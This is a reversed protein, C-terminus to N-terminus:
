RLRVDFHFAKSAGIQIRTFAAHRPNLVYNFEGLIVASPVRLVPAAGTELWRSGFRRTSDPVPTARWNSPFRKPIHLLGPDFKV